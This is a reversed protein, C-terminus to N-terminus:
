VFFIGRLFFGLTASSQTFNKVCSPHVHDTNRLVRGFGFQTSTHETFLSAFCKTALNKSMKRHFFIGWWTSCKTFFLNRELQYFCFSFSPSGFSFYSSIHPFFISNWRRTALFFFLYAALKSKLFFLPFFNLVLIDAGVKASTINYTERIDM